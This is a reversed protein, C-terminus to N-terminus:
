VVDALAKGIADIASAAKDANPGGGQAMDPRGGGGKGGLEAVGVRALTVADVKASLDATVGVILAAKGDVVSVLAVVGSSIGRKAEDLMGRLDKAPVGELV